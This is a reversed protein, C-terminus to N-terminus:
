AGRKQRGQFGSVARGPGPGCARGLNALSRVSRKRRGRIQPLCGCRYDHTRCRGARAARDRDDQATGSPLGTSVTPCVPGFAQISRCPYRRGVIWIWRFSMTPWCSGSASWCGCSWRARAPVLLDQCSSSRVTGRPPVRTCGCYIRISRVFAATIWKRLSHLVFDLPGRECRGTSDWLGIWDTERENLALRLVARPAPEHATALRGLKLCLEAALWETDCQLEVHRGNFTTLLRQPQHQDETSASNAISPAPAEPELAM